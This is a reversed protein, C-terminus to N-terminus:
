TRWVGLRARDNGPPLPPPPTGSLRPLPAAAPHLVAPVATVPALPGTPHDRPPQVTPEDADVCHSSGGHSGHGPRHPDCAVSSSVTLADARLPEAATPGHACCLVHLLTVLALVLAAGARHVSRTDRSISVARMSM